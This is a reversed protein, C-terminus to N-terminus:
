LTVIDILYINWEELMLFTPVTWIGEPLKDAMAAPSPPSTEGCGCAVASAAAAELWGLGRPRSPM